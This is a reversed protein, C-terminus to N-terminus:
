SPDVEGQKHPPQPSFHHVWAVLTNKSGELRIKKQQGAKTLPPEFLNELM